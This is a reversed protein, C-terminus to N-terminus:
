YTFRKTEDNYTQSRLVGRPDVVKEQWAAM